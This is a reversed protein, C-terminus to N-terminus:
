CRTTTPSTARCDSRCRMCGPRSRLSSSTAPIPAACLRHWSSSRPITCATARSSRMSAASSARRADARRGARRLPNCRRARRGAARRGAARVPVGAADDIFRAILWPCAIRDIKPRERTIWKMTAGGNDTERQNPRDGPRQRALRRLRRGPLARRTGDRQLTAAAGQSLEHGHACVFVVPRDRPMEDKWRSSGTPRAGDSGAIEAGDAQRVKERRVDLLTFTRGARQWEELEILTIKEM